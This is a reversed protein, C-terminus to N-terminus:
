IELQKCYNAWSNQRNCTIYIHNTVTGLHNMGSRDRITIIWDWVRVSRELFKQRSIAPSSLKEQAFLGISCPMQKLLFWRQWSKVHASSPSLTLILLKSHLNSNTCRCALVTKNYYNHFCAHRLFTIQWPNMKSDICTTYKWWDETTATNVDTQICQAITNIITWCCTTCFSSIFEKCDTVTLVIKNNGGFAPIFLRTQRYGNICLLIQRHIFDCGTVSIIATKRCLTPDQHIHCIQVQMCVAFYYYNACM